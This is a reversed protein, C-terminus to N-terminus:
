SSGSKTNRPGVWGWFIPCGKSLSGVVRCGVVWMSVSEQVPWGYQTVKARGAKFTWAGKGATSQGGVAQRRRRQKGALEQELRGRVNLEARATSRRGGAASRTCSSLSFQLKSIIHMTQMDILMPINLLVKRKFIIFRAKGLHTDSKSATTSITETITQMYIITGSLQLYFM